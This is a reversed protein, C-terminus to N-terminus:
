QSYILKSTDYGLAQTRAVLAAKEATSPKAARTFLWLFKGEKTGVISWAYDPAHDLVWYEKSILPFFSLRMKANTGADLIHVTARYTKDGGGAKECTQVATIKGDAAQSYQSRASACSEEIRNHLRAIEFWQGLYRSIEVTKAPAPAAALAADAIGPLACALTSACILRATRHM